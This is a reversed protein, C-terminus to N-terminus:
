GLSVRENLDFRHSLGVMFLFVADLSECVLESVDPRFIFLIFRGDWLFLSCHILCFIALSKLECAFKSCESSICLAKFIQLFHGLSKSLNVRLTLLIDVFVTAALLELSFRVLNDFSSDLLVLLESMLFVLKALLLLNLLFLEQFSFALPPLLYQFLIALNTLICCFGAQLLNLPLLLRIPLELLLM